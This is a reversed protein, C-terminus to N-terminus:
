ALDRYGWRRRGRDYVRGPRASGWALEGKRQRAALGYPNNKMRQRLLGPSTVHRQSGQWHV